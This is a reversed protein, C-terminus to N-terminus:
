GCNIRAFFLLKHSYCSFVHVYVANDHKLRISHNFIIERMLKQLIEKKLFRKENIRFKLFTFLVCFLIVKM